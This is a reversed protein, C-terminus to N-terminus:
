DVGNPESSIFFREKDAVLLVIRIVQECSDKRHSKLSRARVPPLHATLVHTRSLSISEERHQSLLQLHLALWAPTM